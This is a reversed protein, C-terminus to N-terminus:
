KFYKALDDCEKRIRDWCNSKSDNSDPLVHSTDYGYEALEVLLHSRTSNNDTIRIRQIREAFTPNEEVPRIGLRKYDDPNLHEYVQRMLYSDQASIRCDIQRPEFIVTKSGKHDPVPSKEGDPIDFDSETTELLWVESAGTEAYSCEEKGLAFWLATMSNSTWDLFRTAIGHHQALAVIDWDSYCIGLRRRLFSLREREFSIPRLVRNKKAFVAIKACLPQNEKKGRFLLVPHEAGFRHIQAFARQQYPLIAMLYEQVTKIEYKM